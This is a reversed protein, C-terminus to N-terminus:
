YDVKWLTLGQAPATEGASRRDRSALMRLVDAPQWRGRGVDVMTGALTRVMHRLFGTGTVEYRLLRAGDDDAGGLVGLPDAERDVAIWSSTLLERTTTSVSGGASQFAAFDHRGVLVAAAARMADLDLASPVHWVLGRALPPVARGNWIAYRYTKTRAHRRADFGAPAEEVALVRVDAPLTANLARRIDEIPRAGPMAVSAVQGAAHVGADTRGAGVVAVPRGALPALADELAAQVTRVDPQRQWGGFAAGDYALIFKLVRSTGGNEGAM